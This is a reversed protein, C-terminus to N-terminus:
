LIFKEEQQMLLESDGVCIFSKNKLMQKNYRFGSTRLHQIAGGSSKVIAEGAATEWEMSPNHRYFIDVSGEAIKCFKLTSGASIVKKIPFKSLVSREEQENTPEFLGTVATLFKSSKTTSIKIRKGKNVRYAGESISGSYMLRLAPAYIVGLVPEGQEILAINVTFENTQKLFERTGNLGDVLWFRKWDKRYYYSISNHHQSIIPIESNVDRLYKVILEEVRHDAITFPSSERKLRTSAFLKRNEYVDMLEEGAQLAIESILQIPILPSTM